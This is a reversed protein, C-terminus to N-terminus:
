HSVPPLRFSRWCREHFCSNDINAASGHAARQLRPCSTTSGGCTYLHSQSLLGILVCLCSCSTWMDPKYVGNFWPWIAVLTTKKLFVWKYFILAKYNSLSFKQMKSLSAYFRPKQVRKNTSKTQQLSNWLLVNSVRFLLTGFIIAELIERCSLPLTTLVLCRSDKGRPSVGPIWERLRQASPLAMSRGSPNLSYFIGIVRDPISGAVKRSTADGRTGV